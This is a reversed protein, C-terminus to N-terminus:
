AFGFKAWRKVVKNLIITRLLLFVIMGATILFIFTSNYTPKFEESYVIGIIIIVILMITLVFALIKARLKESNVLEQILKEDSIKRDVGLHDLLKNLLL